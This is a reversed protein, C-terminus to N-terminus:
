CAVTERLGERCNHTRYSVVDGVVIVAPSEVHVRGSRIESLTTELLRERSTSAHEIFAVAELPSRGADLLSQAIAVRNEVGMLIILTNIRSYASWDITEISERHGAIVTFSTAVNRLTLPIGNLAPAALASSIGPIVEADIGNEALFAMEEGCRGFVTPDGSKLRVIIKFEQSYQLFARYIEDQVEDQQGKRKGAYVLQASPNSLALVDRSVLRDYIVVEAQQLMRHAKRTLLDPDGPGAGVLYV